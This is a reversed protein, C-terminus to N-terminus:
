RHGDAPRASSGIETVTLEDVVRMVGPVHRCCEVCLRKDHQSRLTGRLAATHDVVAVHLGEIEPLRGRLCAMIRWMLEHRETSDPEAFYTAIPGIERNSAPKM